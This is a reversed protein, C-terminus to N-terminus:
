GLPDALRFGTRLLKRISAMAARRRTARPGRIVVHSRGTERLRELFRDTMWGRIKEGDRVGDQSFPVDGPHTVLYLHHTTADALAEVGDHRSGCYREHWIGTAFADTDCVLVPGGIRAAENERRTQETAIALFDAANWVLDEIQPSRRGALAAAVRARALKDITADRGHEPVWRTLGLAGGRSRLRQALEAALTTKGTSEAGVLVVRLALDGRVCPVLSEWATVPDRRVQTGSMPVLARDLDVLVNRADFRRALEEGYPESTFVADVPEATLQALVARFVAMHAEWVAPDGYDVPHEDLGGAIFVNREAAHVERMWSVRRELPISEVQSALVLVSVRDCVAAAARVLLHHGAHPPYFKGLILGHRARATV